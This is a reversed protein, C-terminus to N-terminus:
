PEESSTVDYFTMGWVLCLVVFGTTGGAYQSVVALNKATETVIGGGTVIVAITTYVWVKDLGITYGLAVGWALGLATYGIEGGVVSTRLGLGYAALAVVVGGVLLVLASKQPRQLQMQM